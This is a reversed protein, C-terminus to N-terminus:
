CSGNIAEINVKILSEAVGVAEKILARNYEFDRQILYKKVVNRAYSGIAVGHAQVGCQKALTGTKSNTGGSLLIKM